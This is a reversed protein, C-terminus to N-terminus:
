RPNYVGERSSIINSKVRYGKYNTNKLGLAAKEAWHFVFGGLGTEGWQKFVGDHCCVLSDGRCHEIIKGTKEEDCFYFKREQWM